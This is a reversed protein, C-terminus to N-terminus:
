KWALSGIVDATYIGNVLYGKSLKLTFSDLPNSSSARTTLTFVKGGEVIKTSSVKANGIGDLVLYTEETLAPNRVILAQSSGDVVICMPDSVKSTFCGNDAIFVELANPTYFSSTGITIDFDGAKITTREFTKYGPDGVEEEPVCAAFLSLALVPMM